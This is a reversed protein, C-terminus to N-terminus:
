VCIGTLATFNGGTLNNAINETLQFHRLWPELTPPPVKVNKPGLAKVLLFIWYYHIAFCTKIM